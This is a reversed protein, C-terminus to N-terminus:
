IAKHELVGALASNSVSVDDVVRRSESQLCVIRRRVLWSLGGHLIWPPFSVQPESDKTNILATM